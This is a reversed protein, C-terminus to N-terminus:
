CTKAPRDAASASTNPCIYIPLWIYGIGKEYECSYLQGTIPNIGIKGWTIANCKLSWISPYGALAVRSLTHASQTSAQSASTAASAAPASTTTVTLILALPALALALSRM